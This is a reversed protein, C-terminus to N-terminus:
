LNGRKAVQPHRRLVVWSFPQAAGSPTVHVDRESHELDFGGAFLEALGEATYRCTPLASCQTPGDEAFAGLVLVGGARVASEAARVYRERDGAETLFHFVARDHWASFTRDPEWALLDAVVFRAGPRGQLRDRAVELAGASVDLVTVDTWGDDLLADVLLSAGAGVDVVPDAPSAFRRMLRLSTSPRDEYWSVESPDRTAYVREWHREAASSM